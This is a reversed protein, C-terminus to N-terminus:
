CPFRCWQLCFASSLETVCDSVDCVLAFHSLEPRQRKKRESKNNQSDHKGGVDM